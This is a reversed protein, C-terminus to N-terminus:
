RANFDGIEAEVPASSAPSCCCEFFPAKPTFLRHYVHWNTNPLHGHISLYSSTVLKHTYLKYTCYSVCLRGLGNGQDLLVWFCRFHSFLENSSHAILTHGQSFLTPQQLRSMVIYTAFILKKTFVNDNYQKWVPVGTPKLVLPHVIAHVGWFKSRNM